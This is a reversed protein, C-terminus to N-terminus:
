GPQTIGHAAAALKYLRYGLETADVTATLLDTDRSGKRRYGDMGMREDIAEVIDDPPWYVFNRHKQWDRFTAKEVGAHYAPSLGSRKAAAECIYTIKTNLAYCRREAGEPPVPRAARSPVWVTGDVGILRPPATPVSRRIEVSALSVIHKPRAGDPPISTFSEPQFERTEGFDRVM